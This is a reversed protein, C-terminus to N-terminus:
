LKVFRFTKSVNATKVKLFYSGAALNALSIEEPSNLWNLTTVPNSLLKGQADYFSIDVQGAPLNKFALRLTSAAPNPYIFVEDALLNSELYNKVAIYNPVGYGLQNDPTTSQSASLRIALVLQAPTYRSYAQLLGAALSTVLPSSFSTGSATSLTGDPLVVATSQGLAVVDPKIRGDATPGFSSFGVKAGYSNVAGIALIGDVDAPPTIFHWGTNGENGASVVVIIGRDRAMSAARSVVAIKGNLDTIKYDMQSDDFLNYGLSSQIVDTGASDAKEAAFLWNYEEIRYESSKDETVFLLYNAKYAGGTFMEGKAAIVSFVETGHADFQYVNGSNTVFDQTMKIRGEAFIPQFPLASNVGQFGGDLISITVGEGYFGDQHMKDLGLMQLQAQTTEPASGANQQNLQKSRGGILKKGPAVLDVKTVFPLSAISSIVSANGEVLVGNMWKSTFFTKAGTARVQTVYSPTVPLDEATLSIGSHVRRQLSRPSLFAEPQNLSYPNSTKDKFFVVYRDSQAWGSSSVLLLILVEKCGVM